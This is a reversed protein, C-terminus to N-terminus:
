KKVTPANAPAPAGPTAAPTQLCGANVIGISGTGITVPIADKCGDAIQKTLAQGLQGVATGFGNQFVNGSFSAMAANSATTFGRNYGNQDAGNIQASQIYPYTLSLLFYVTTFIVWASGILTGISLSAVSEKSFM